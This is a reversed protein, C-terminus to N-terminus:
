SNQKLIYLTTHIRIFYMGTLNIIKSESSVRISKNNIALFQVYIHFRKNVTRNIHNSCGVKIVRVRSDYKMKNTHLDDASIEHEENSRM